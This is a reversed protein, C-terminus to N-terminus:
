SVHPEPLGLLFAIAIYLHDVCVTGGGGGNGSDYLSTVTYRSASRLAASRQPVAARSQRDRCL